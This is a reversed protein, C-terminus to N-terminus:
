SRKGLTNMSREADKFTKNFLRAKSFTIQDLHLLALREPVCTRKRQAKRQGKLVLALDQTNKCPFIICFM